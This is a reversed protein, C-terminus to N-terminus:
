NLRMGVEQSWPLLDRQQIQINPTPTSSLLAPSTDVEPLLSEKNETTFVVSVNKHHGARHPAQPTQWQWLAGRDPLLHQSLVRSYFPLATHAELRRANSDLAYAHECFNLIFSRTPLWVM